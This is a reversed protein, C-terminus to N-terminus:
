FIVCIHLYLLSNAYLISYIFNDLMIIVYFIYGPIQSTSELVNGFFWFTDICLEIKKNSKKIETLNQLQGHHEQNLRYEAMPQLIESIDNM